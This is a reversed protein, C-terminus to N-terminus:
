WRAMSPCGSRSATRRHLIPRGSRSRTTSGAAASRARPSPRLRGHGPWGGPTSSVSTSAATPCTRATPPPTGPPEYRCNGAFYLWLRRRRGDLILEHPRAHRLVQVLGFLAAPGKGLVGELQERAQVLDVYIGTISTNVFPRNGAIGVDVARGRRRDPRDRCRTGVPHGPRCRFPQVPGGSDGAAAPRAGARGGVGHQGHWRRWSGRPDTGEGRGPATAGRLGPWPRDRDARGPSTGCSAVPGAEIFGNRSRHERGPGPWGRSLLRASAAPVQDSGRAHSAAAAVLAGDDGRCRVRDRGRGACGISLASRDDSALRKGGRRARDRARGPWADGACALQSPRRRRRTGPRSHRQEAAAAPRRSGGFRAPRAALGKGLINATM